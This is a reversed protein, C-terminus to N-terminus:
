KSCFYKIIKRFLLKKQQYAFEVCYVCTWGGATVFNTNFTITGDESTKSKIAESVKFATKKYPPKIEARREKDVRYEVKAVATAYEVAWNGTSQQVEKPLEWEIPGPESCALSLGCFTGLFTFLVVLIAKRM